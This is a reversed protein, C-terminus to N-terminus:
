ETEVVCLRCAAYHCLIDGFLRIDIMDVQMGVAGSMPGWDPHSTIGMLNWAGEYDEIAAYQSEILTQFTKESANADALGYVSDITFVHAREKEGVTRQISSSSARSIMTANIIDGGTKFADLVAKWRKAFRVYDHVMGIGSVGEVIIKVEALRESLAM